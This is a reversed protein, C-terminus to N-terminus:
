VSFVALQFSRRLRCLRGEMDFDGLFGGGTAHHLEEELSEFGLLAVGPEDGAGDDAVARM